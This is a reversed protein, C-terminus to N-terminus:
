HILNHLLELFAQVEVRVPVGVLVLLLLLNLLGNAVSARAFSALLRERKVVSSYHCRTAALPGCFIKENIRVVITIRAASFRLLLVLCVIPPSHYLAVRRGESLIEDRLIVWDLPYGVLATFRAYLLPGLITEHVEGQLLHALFILPQPSMAKEVSVLKSDARHEQPPSELFNLAADLIPLQLKCGYKSASM